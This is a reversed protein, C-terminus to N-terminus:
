REQERQGEIRRIAEALISHEYGRAADPLLERLINLCRDRECDRGGEHAAKGYARMSPWAQKAPGDFWEEYTM